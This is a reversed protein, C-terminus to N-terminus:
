QEIRIRDYALLKTYYEVPALYATSLLVTTQTPM